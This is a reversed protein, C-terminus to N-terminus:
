VDDAPMCQPNEGSKEYTSRFRAVEPVVCAKQKMQQSLDPSVRLCLRIDVHGERLGSAAHVLSSAGRSASRCNQRHSTPQETM